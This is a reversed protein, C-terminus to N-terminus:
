LDLLRVDIITAQGGAIHLCGSKLCMLRRGLRESIAVGEGDRFFLVLPTPVFDSEGDWDLKPARVERLGHDDVLWWQRVLGPMPGRQLDGDETEGIYLCRFAPANGADTRYVKRVYDAFHPLKAEAWLTSLAEAIRQSHQDTPM